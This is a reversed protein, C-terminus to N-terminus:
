GVLRPKPLAERAEKAAQFARCFGMAAEPTKERRMTERAHQLEESARAARYLLLAPDETLDDAHM